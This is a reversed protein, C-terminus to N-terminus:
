DGALCAAAVQNEGAARQQDRRPVLQICEIGANAALRRFRLRAVSRLGAALGSGVMFPLSGSLPGEITSGTAAIASAALFASSHYWRKPPKDMVAGADIKRQQRGHRVYSLTEM